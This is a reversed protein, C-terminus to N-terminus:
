SSSVKEGCKDVNLQLITASFEERSFTELYNFKKMCVDGDVIGDKARQDRAVGPAVLLPDLSKPKM